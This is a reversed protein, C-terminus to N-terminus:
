PVPEPTTDLVTVDEDVLLVTKWPEVVVEDVTGTAGVVTVEGGVVTVGVVTAGVVTVV